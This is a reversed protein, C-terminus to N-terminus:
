LHSLKSQKVLLKGKFHNPPSPMHLPRELSQTFGLFCCLGCLGGPM